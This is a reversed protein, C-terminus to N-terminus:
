TKAALQVPGGEKVISASGVLSANGFVSCTLVGRGSRLLRQRVGVHETRREQKSSYARGIRREAAERGFRGDGWTAGIRPRRRDPAWRALRARRPGSSRHASALHDDRDRALLLAGEPHPTTMNAATTNSPIASSHKASSVPASPGTRPRCTRASSGSPPEGGAAEAPEPQDALRFLRCARSRQRRDFALQPCWGRCHVLKEKTGTSERYIWEAAAAPAGRQDL